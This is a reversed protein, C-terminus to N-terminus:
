FGLEETVMRKEDSTIENGNITKAHTGLYLSLYVDVARLYDLGIEFFKPNM